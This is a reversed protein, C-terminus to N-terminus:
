ITEGHYSLNTKRKRFTYRLQTRERFSTRHTNIIAHEFKSTLRQPSLLVSTQYLTCLIQLSSFKQWICHAAVHTTCQQLPPVDQRGYTFDRELHTYAKYYNLYSPLLEDLAHAKSLLNVHQHERLVATIKQQSLMKSRNTQLCHSLLVCRRTQIHLGHTLALRM